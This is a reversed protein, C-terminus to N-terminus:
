LPWGSESDQFGCVEIYSNYGLDTYGNGVALRWKARRSIRETPALIVPDIRGDIVRGLLDVYSEIEDLKASGYVMAHNFRAANLATESFLAPFYDSEFGLLRSAVDVTETPHPCNGFEEEWFTADSGEPKHTLARSVAWGAVCMTTGCDPSAGEAWQHPDTIDCGFIEVGPIHLYSTQDHKEPMEAIADRVLKLLEINM